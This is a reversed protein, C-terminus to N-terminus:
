RVLRRRHSLWLTCMVVNVITLVSPVILSSAGAPTATSPSFGYNCGYYVYSTFNLIAAGGILRYTLIGGWGRALRFTGTGGLIAVERYVADINDYGRFVLTSGDEYDSQNNFIVTLVFELSTSDSPLHDFVYFGRGRAIELSDVDPGVTVKDDIVAISGFLNANALGNPASLASVVTFSSGVPTVDFDDHVFFTIVASQQGDQSCPPANLASATSPWLVCSLVAVVTCIFLGMAAQHAISM